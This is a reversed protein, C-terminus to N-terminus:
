DTRCRAPERSFTRDASAVEHAPRRRRLPWLTLLAVGWLWTGQPSNPLGVAHCLCRSPTNATSLPAKRPPSATATPAPPTPAPPEATESLVPMERVRRYLEEREKRLSEVDKIEKERQAIEQTDARDLFNVVPAASRAIDGSSRGPFEQYARKWVKPADPYPAPLLRWGPKDGYFYKRLKDTKFPQGALAYAANKCMRLQAMATPNYFEKCEEDATVGSRALRDEGMHPTGMPSSQFDIWLDDHPEWDKKLLEIEVYPQEKDADVIRPKGMTDRVTHTEPPMRVTFRAEGISGAWTAGSRTVYTTFVNQYVDGGPNVKYAHDIKTEQRPAFTVDFLWVTGLHKAWEHSKKLKGKRLPVEQGNVRTVLDRFGADVCDGGDDHSCIIEPFGVQVPAFEDTENVFVYHATVVFSRGDYVLLIDEAKM